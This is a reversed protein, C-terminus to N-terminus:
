KAVADLITRPGRLKRRFQIQHERWLRLAALTSPSTVRKKRTYFVQFDIVAGGIGRTIDAKV